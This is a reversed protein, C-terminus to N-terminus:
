DSMALEALAARLEPIGAGSTSSTAAIHPHAAAHSSLETALDALLTDLAAPKVKDVKTLVLQFVVAATDFRKIWDRDHPKMGRRADVLLLVRRLNPRGLLYADLLDSWRSVEARPAKAYGYGPLDALTFRSGLTFLNIQQTRGPTNSVRALMRHGTLANLLSSKGVNSRGAFAVEFGAPAPLDDAKAIGMVFTCAQTFLKRGAEIKAADFAAAITAVKQEVAAPIM